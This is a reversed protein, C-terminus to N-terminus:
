RQPLGLDSISTSGVRLAAFAATIERAAPRTGTLTTRESSSRIIARAAQRSTGPDPDPSPFGVAPQVGEVAPM